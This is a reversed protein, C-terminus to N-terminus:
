FDRDHMEDRTFRRAGGHLPKKEILKKLSQWCKGSTSEEDLEITLSIPTHDPLSIREAIVLKGEFVIAPIRSKLVSM